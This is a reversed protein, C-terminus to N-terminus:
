SSVKFLKKYIVKSKIYRDHIPWCLIFIKCPTTTTKWIKSDSSKFIDKFHLWSCFLHVCLYPKYFFLHHCHTYFNRKQKQLKAFYHSKSKYCWPLCAAKLNHNRKCPSFAMSPPSPNQCSNMKLNAPSSGPDQVGLFCIGVQTTVRGGEEQWPRRQQQSRFFSLMNCQLWHYSGDGDGKYCSSFFRQFLWLGNRWKTFSVIM